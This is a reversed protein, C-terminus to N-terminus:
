HVVRAFAAAPCGFDLVKRPRENLRRALSSLHQQDYGDLRTGKPLYQRILRNTNENTGRQWPSKPDCFFVPVGSDSTLKIHSALETGRDWTLSLKAKRPLSNLWTALASVVSATDKGAVKLMVTFRTVREVLTAVFTNGRGAILDGEWHGAVTREAVEPPREALTRAGVIQGRTQGSNSARRSRRMRRRSRLQKSAEVSVGSRSRLYLARYIAEHSVRKEPADPHQRALWGAIQEPSWDLDLKGEVVKRLENDCELRLAQPRLRKGAAADEAAKARYGVRGGNRSVERSVTSAARGMSRAIARCSDGAALGRSIDEREEESLATRARRAGRPALGGHRSLFGHVTGPKRDLMRSIESLTAGAKWQEWVLSSEQESFGVRTGM